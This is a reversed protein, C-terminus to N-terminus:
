QKKISRQLMLLVLLGQTIELVIRAWNTDMIKQILLENKGANLEINWPAQFLITSLWDLILCIFSIALLKDPVTAPRFWFLAINLLTILLFPYVSIPFIAKDLLAHYSIFETEGVLMRSPYVLFYDMMATGLSYFSFACFLHFLFWSQYRTRM